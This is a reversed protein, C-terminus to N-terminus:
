LALGIGLLLLVESNWRQFCQIAFKFIGYFKTFVLLINTNCFGNDDGWEIREKGQTLFFIM